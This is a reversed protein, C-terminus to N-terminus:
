LVANNEKFSYFGNGIIIHDVLPINIINCAQKLRETMKIDDQSPVCDGSPHNHSIIINVAGCLLARILCERPSTISQNCTGHSLEFVGCIKMKTNFAIMYIYEEALMNMEFVSNMFDVIQIPNSFNSNRIYEFTKETVLINKFTDKDLKTNYTSIIM